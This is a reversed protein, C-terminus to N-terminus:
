QLYVIYKYIWDNLEDIDKRLAEPYFDLARQEDTECFENFESNFMRMIESSENNVITKKKKDWLVPVSFRGDYEKNALFYVERLYQFGNITDPTAGEVEPNFKWGNEGLFFDVVNVSICKELGKMQRVILTRHAWPCAYSVYLHYRGAEPPFGSSGDKTIWDRFSSAKRVFEGKENAWKLIKADKNGDAMKTSSQLYIQRCSTIIRSHKFSTSRTLLRCHNACRWVTTCIALTSPHM